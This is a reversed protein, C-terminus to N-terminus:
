HQLQTSLNNDDWTPNRVICELLKPRGLLLESRPIGGLIGSLLCRQEM